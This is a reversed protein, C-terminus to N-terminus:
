KNGIKDKLAKIIKITKKINNFLSYLSQYKFIINKIFVKKNLLNKEKILDYEKELLEKNNFQFALDFRKQIYKEKIINQYTIEDKIKM